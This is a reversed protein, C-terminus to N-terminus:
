RCLMETNRSCILGKSPSQLLNLRVIEGIRALLKGSDALSTRQFHSTCILHQTEPESGGKTRYHATDNGTSRINITQKECWLLDFVCHITPKLPRTCVPERALHSHGTRQSSLTCGCNVCNCDCLLTQICVSTASSIPGKRTPDCDCDCLFQTTWLGRGQTESHSSLVSHPTTEKLLRNQVGTGM